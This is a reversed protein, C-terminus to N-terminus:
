SLWIKRGKMRDLFSSKNAESVLWRLGARRAVLPGRVLRCLTSDALQTGRLDEALTKDERLAQEEICGGGPGLEQLILHKDLTENFLGEGLM